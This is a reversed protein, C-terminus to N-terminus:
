LIKVTYQMIIANNEGPEIREFEQQISARGSKSKKVVTATVAHNATPPILDYLKTHKPIKGQLSINFVPSKGYNTATITYLICSNPLALFDTSTKGDCNKDVAQDLSITIIKSHSAAHNTAPILLSTSLLLVQISRRKM